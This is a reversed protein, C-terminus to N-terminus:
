SIPQGVGSILFAASFTYFWVVGVIFSFTGPPRFRGLAGSFGGGEFGGPARNVWASQPSYFQLVILVTMAVTGWLWYRGIQIVDSRFFVTGMIFAFPIHLFNARLGFAAVIPNAHGVFLAIFVSVAMLAIGIGVFKNMPFKGRPIAILYALLVIPDRALILLDSLSPVVWKRLSGELILLIIYIYGLWRLQKDARSIPKYVKNDAM